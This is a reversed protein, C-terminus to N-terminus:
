NHTLIYRNWVNGRNIVKITYVGTKAPVWKVSAVDDLNFDSAVVNGQADLVQIDLDTDGDGIVSVVARQDARFEVRHTSTTSANAKHVGSSPGNVAGAAADGASSVFGVVAVLMGAVVTFLKRTM